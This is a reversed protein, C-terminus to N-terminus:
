QNSILMLQFELIFFIPVTNSTYICYLLNLCTESVAPNRWQGESVMCNWYVLDRMLVVSINETTGVYRLLNSISIKPKMM